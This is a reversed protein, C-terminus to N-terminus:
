FRDKIEKLGYHDEDLVKKAHEIDLNDQTYYGMTISFIWELYNRTVTAEM